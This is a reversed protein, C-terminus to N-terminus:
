PIAPIGTAAPTKPTAVGFPNSLTSRGVGGPGVAAVRAQYVTGGTLAAVTPGIGATITNSVPVPKALSQTFIVVGLANMAVTELDYRTVLATGFSDVASHDASATFEVQSTATVPTVTQTSALAPMALLGGVFALTRLRTV